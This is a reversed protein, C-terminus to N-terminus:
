ELAGTDIWEQIIMLEAAALMADPPPPMATGNGGVDLQTGSVKHFLYSTASSGPEVYVLGDVSSAQDILKLYAGAPDEGLVPDFVAGPTMGDPVVVHCSCHAELIPWVDQRFHLGPLDVTTADAASSSSGTPSDTTTAGGTDSADSADSADGSTDSSGDTTSGPSSGCASLVLALFPAASRTFAM